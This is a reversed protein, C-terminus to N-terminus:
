TKPRTGVRLVVAIYALGVLAGGYVTITELPPSFAYDVHGSQAFHGLGHACLFASVGMRSRSAVVESAHATLWFVVTLLPIHLIVFWFFGAQDDLQSLVPLIRWENRVAADVEHTCLLALGFYFLLSLLSYRHPATM